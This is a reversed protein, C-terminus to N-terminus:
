FEGIPQGDNRAALSRLTNMDINESIFRAGGDSLLVHIGGTHTSNWITNPAYPVDSGTSASTANIQYRLSSLGTQWAYSGGPALVETSGIQGFFNCSTYGGYYGSRLDTKATGVTGSQEAVLLTNSTGDTADRMRTVDNWKFMGNNTYIGYYNVFGVTTGAPFQASTGISSGAVGVYMPVQIRNSNHGSNWGVAPSGNPDLPSSPCAYVPITKGRLLVANAHSSSSTFGRNSDTWNMQNYLTGQDLMPWIHARWNPVIHYDEGTTSGGTSGPPFCSHTDHYNHIALGMQKLHNRCQTRRAAERAQQVAPLLLAILIAIIAIVVLLEILTFGRNRKM